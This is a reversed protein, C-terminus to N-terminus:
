VSTPKKALHVIYSSLLTLCLTITLLHGISLIRRNNASPISSYRSTVVNDSLASLTYIHRRRSDSIKSLSDDIYQRSVAFAPGRRLTRAAVPTSSKNVGAITILRAVKPHAAFLNIAMSGGASEGILSVTAGTDTIGTIIDSADQFKTEYARGDYWKMPVLQTTVGFLSWGRLAKMRFDDYSDGLGPIYLIYHKM